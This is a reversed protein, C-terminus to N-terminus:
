FSASDDYCLELDEPCDDYDFTESSEEEISGTENELYNSDLKKVTSSKYRELAALLERIKAQKNGIMSKPRIHVDGVERLKDIQEDLEKVRMLSLKEYTANDLLKVSALKRQKDAKRALIKSQRDRGAAAREELANDIKERVKKEEGSSDLLRAKKRIWLEDADTLTA